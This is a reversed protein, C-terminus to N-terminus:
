QIWKWRFQTPIAGIEEMFADIGDAPPKNQLAALEPACVHWDLTRSKYPAIGATQTLTKTPGNKDDPYTGDKHKPTYTTQFTQTITNVATNSRNEYVTEVWACKNDSSLDHWVTVAVSGQPAPKTQSPSPTPTSVSSSEATPSTTETVTATATVTPM